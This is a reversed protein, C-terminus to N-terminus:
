FSSIFVRKLYIRLLDLWEHKKHEHVFSGQTIRGFMEQHIQLALTTPWYNEGGGKEEGKRRGGGRARNYTCTGKIENKNTQWLSKYGYCGLGKSMGSQSQFEPLLNPSTRQNQWIYNATYLTPVTHPILAQAIASKTHCNSRGKNVSFDKIHNNIWKM